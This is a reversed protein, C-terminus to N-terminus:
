WLTQRTEITEVRGDPTVVHVPINAARAFKVCSGTGKSAGEVVFAVCVNPSSDVMAKNRLPGAAKGHTDWDPHWVEERWGEESCLTSALSDAGKAGGHILVIPPEGETVIERLVSRLLVVDNWQRSGSVLVRVVEGGDVEPFLREPHVDLLIVLIYDALPALQATCQVRYRM